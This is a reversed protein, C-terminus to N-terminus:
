RSYVSIKTLFIALYYLHFVKFMSPAISISPIILILARRLVVYALQGMGERREKGEGRMPLTCLKGGEREHACKHARGSDREYEHVREKLLLSETLSTFNRIPMSPPNGM